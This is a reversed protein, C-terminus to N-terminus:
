PQDVVAFTEEFVEFERDLEALAEDIAAARWAEETPRARVAAVRTRMLEMSTALAAIRQRFSERSAQMQATTHLQEELAAVEQEILRAAAGDTPQRSRLMDLRQRTVEPPNGALFRDVRAYRHALALVDSMLQELARRTTELMAGYVPEHARLQQTLAYYEMLCVTVNARVDDDTLERLTERAQLSTAADFGTVHQLLRTMDLHYHSRYWALERVLFGGLALLGIPLLLFSYLWSAAITALVILALIMLLLRLM